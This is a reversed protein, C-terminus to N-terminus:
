KEVFQKPKRSDRNRLMNPCSLKKGEKSRTYEVFVVYQEDPSLSESFVSATGTYIKKPERIRLEELQQKRAEQKEERQKLIDFLEMQENHLWKEQENSYTKKEAKEKGTRFDTLVRLSENQLSFLYINNDCIFSIDQQNLMFHPSTINDPLDLLLTPEGGSFDRIYLNGNKVWVIRKRDNTIDSQKAPIINKLEEPQLKKIKRDDPSWSYTSSLLDNDPNWTFYVKTGDISWRVDEPWTGTWEEGKMIDELTLSSNNRYSQANLTNLIIFLGLSPWFLKLAM